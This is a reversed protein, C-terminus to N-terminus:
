GPPDEITIKGNGHHLSAIFNRLKWSILLKNMNNSINTQSESSSLRSLGPLVNKLYNHSDTKNFVINIQGVENLASIKSILFFCVHM